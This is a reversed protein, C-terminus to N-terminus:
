EKGKGVVRLSMLGAFTSSPSGSDSAGVTFSASKPMARIRHEPWSSSLGSAPVTRAQTHTPLDQILDPIRGRAIANCRPEQPAPPPTPSLQAAGSAVHQQRYACPDRSSACGLLRVQRM